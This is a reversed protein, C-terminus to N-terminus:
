LITYCSCLLFIHLIRAQRRSSNTQAMAAPRARVRGTQPRGDRPAPVIPIILYYVYYSLICIYM